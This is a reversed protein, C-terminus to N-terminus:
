CVASGDVYTLSLIWVSKSYFPGHVLKSKKLIYSPIKLLHNLKLDTNYPLNFQIFCSEIIRARGSFLWKVMAWNGLNLDM